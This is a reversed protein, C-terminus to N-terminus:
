KIMCKASNFTLGQEKAIKFLNHLNTDHEEETKGFVVVDDAITIIGPCNKLIKSKISFMLLWEADLKSFFRSVVFKHTIEDQMPTKPHRRKTAKNLYKPDLCICLSGDKKTTCVMNNVWYPCSTKFRREASHPQVAMTTQPYMQSKHITVM